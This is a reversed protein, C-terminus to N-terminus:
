SRAADGRSHHTVTTLERARQQKAKKQRSERVLRLVRVAPPQQLVEEAEREELVEGLLAEVFAEHAVVHAVVVVDEARRLAHEVGHARVRRRVVAVRPRRACPARPPPEGVNAAAGVAVVVVRERAAREDREM